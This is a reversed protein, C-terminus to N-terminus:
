RILIIPIRCSRIMETTTSGIILSRIRSHGYAGMVLLDIGHSEVYSSIVTDPQGEVMETTVTYAAAELDAVARNLQLRAAETVPGATVVHCELGRLLPTTRVFEIAKHASASGDFAIMFRSIPKFARAAVLLPKTVSRALREVNSGLHLKAFDAAEGRKGVVVLDAQPAVEQVAELLDGHRLKTSVHQVGNRELCTKVEDLILRGRKQSLKARDEDLAALELLLSDRSDVSLNGTFDAPASSMDRRGLVHLAEVAAETRIAAWSAHGCVSQGYISGDFLSLIHKM